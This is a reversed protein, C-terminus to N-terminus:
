GEEGKLRKLEQLGRETIGWRNVDKNHVVLPEGAKADAMKALLPSLSTREVEKGFQDRMSGIIEIALLGAKPARELASLTMFKQTLKPGGYSVAGADAPAAAKALSVRGPPRDAMGISISGNDIMSLLTALATRQEERGKMRAQILEVLQQDEQNLRKLEAMDRVIDDVEFTVSRSAPQPSDDSM